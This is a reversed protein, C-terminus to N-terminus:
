QKTRGRFGRAGTRKETNDEQVPESVNEHSDPVHISAIGRPREFWTLKVLALVSYGNHSVLFFKRFNLTLYFRSFTM